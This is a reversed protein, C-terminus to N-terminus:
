YGKSEVKRGVTREEMNGVKRGVTREEMNGV